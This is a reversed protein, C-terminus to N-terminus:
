WMIMRELQTSFMFLTFGNPLSRLCKSSVTKGVPFLKQARLAGILLLCKMLMALFIKPLSGPRPAGFRQTIERMINCTCAACVKVTSDRSGSVLLRSDGSWRVQYVPGVHGRLTAIFRPAWLVLGRRCALLPCSVNAKAKDIKVARDEDFSKV